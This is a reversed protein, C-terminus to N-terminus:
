RHPECPLVCSNQLRRAAAFVISGSGRDCAAVDRCHTEGRQIMLWLQQLLRSSRTAPRLRVARRRRAPRGPRPSAIVPPWSAPPGWPQAASCNTALATCLFAAWRLRIKLWGHMFLM